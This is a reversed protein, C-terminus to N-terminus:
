ITGETRAKELFNFVVEAIQRAMYPPVANGVQTYQQTKNGEFFYNDPFTQLRAAERVTLSRCQSPSPHIYYHGDKAIHSVVTTSPQYSVQVRFRDKFPVNESSVNGHAPLLQDPFDALKPSQAFTSAFCSAFLYRHIDSRMHRRTEHLTAGGIRPDQYWARLRKPMARDLKFEGPVFRGGFSRNGEARLAATKMAERVQKATHSNWGRLARPGEKVAGLWAEYSDPEKSLRSRLPPLGSIAKIVSVMGSRPPVLIEHKLHAMDRRIGLLIVRHRMQPVGFLESEIVFDNPNLSDKDGTVVFSRIEYELDNGPRSLDNLIRDFISSGGHTSSLMGKVNEMVFIAPGFRNIIRLYEKYLFHRSDAEFAKPDAGRMRSRGALSYAQCPPGGILVWPDSDGIAQSIWRDVEKQPTEGLTANRAEGSAALAEDSISPHAFLEERTIDGRIYDYYCDPAEGKSFSRFLARLSLTRHAVPDKEISVRVEFAKRDHDDTLSSFGEGLGGPGAFLDIVPIPTSASSTTSSDSRSKM